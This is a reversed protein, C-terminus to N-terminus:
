GVQLEMVLDGHHHTEVEFIGPINAEFTISGPQGPAFGVVLDYGHIHLEDATDGVVIITVSDRADIRYRQVGDVPKGGAVEVEITTGVDPTPTPEPTPTPTPEPTPAATPGETPEPTPPPTSESTPQETPQSTAAATPEATAEATLPATAEPTAEITPEATAEATLPPTAANDDNGCAAALLSLAALPGVLLAAGRRSITM